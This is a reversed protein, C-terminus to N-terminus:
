QADPAASVLSVGLLVRHVRVIRAFAREPDREAPAGSTSADGRNTLKTSLRRRVLPEIVFLMLTFAAWVAVMAHMWWY